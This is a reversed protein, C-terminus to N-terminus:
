RRVGRVVVPQEVEPLLVEEKAEDPSPHPVPHGPKGRLRVDLGVHPVVPRHPQLLQVERRRRSQLEPLEQPPVLLRLVPEIVIVIVPVVARGPDTVREVADEAARDLRLGRLQRGARGITEV